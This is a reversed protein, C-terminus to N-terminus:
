VADNGAKEIATFETDIPEAVSEHVGGVCFVSPVGRSSRPYRMRYPVDGDLRLWLTEMSLGPVLEYTTVSRDGAVHYKETTATEEVPASLEGDLRALLVM